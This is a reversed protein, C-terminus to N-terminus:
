RNRSAPVEELSLPQAASLRFRGRGTREMQLCACREALRKQLLVLRAELNDSLDPLKISPDLRLERNTFETRNSGLLERLLKALIAGAVGKILYDTGIFISDDAAYHRIVIAPVGMLATSPAPVSPSLLPTDPPDTHERLGRIAIALASAIAALADEEQYGFRLDSPSEAYLVGLLTDSAIVPVALQSRSDPLGPFPIATEFTESLGARETSDRIARGYSYEAAAHSILIPTRHAAAVGIVGCGLAIESGVGSQAYGRSAVTYLRQGPADFMVIMSHRIDLHSELNVLTEDFLQALDTSRSVPEIVARLASLVNIRPAASPLQDRSVDTISLVRYIDAGQLRFVKSMGVHSAIGALRAKMSEYLPGSTETRIYQVEMHYREATVPHIVAVEAHPNVLVNQHTKSFFQFSLAIHSADVFHAQTIYTANPIGDASCTVVTSPIGGELCGRVSELSLSM